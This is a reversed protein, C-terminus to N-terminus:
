IPSVTYSTYTATDRQEHYGHQYTLIM